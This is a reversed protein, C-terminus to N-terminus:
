NPVIDVFMFRDVEVLGKDTLKLHPIVPLVLISITMLPDKLKTFTTSLMEKLRRSVQQYSEIRVLGAFPLSLIKESGDIMVVYGGDIKVTKQRARMM